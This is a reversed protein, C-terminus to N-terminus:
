TGAAVGRLMETSLMGVIARCLRLDTTLLPLGRTIARDVVLADYLRLSREAALRASRALADTDTPHIVIGIDDLHRAASVFERVSLLRNQYGKVRLVNAFEVRVFDVTELAVSGDRFQKKIERAHEFGPQDLYWRVFVGSDALYADPM